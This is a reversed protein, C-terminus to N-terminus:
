KQKALVIKGTTATITLKTKTNDMEFTDTEPFGPSPQLTLTAADKCAHWRGAQGANGIRLSYRGDAAFTLTAPADGAIDSIGMGQWTGIFEPPHAEDGAKQDEPPENKGDQDIVRAEGAEKLNTIVATPVGADMLSKAAAGPLLVKMRRSSPPPVVSSIHCFAGVVALGVAVYGSAEMLGIM